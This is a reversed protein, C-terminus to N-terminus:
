DELGGSPAPQEADESLDFMRELAHMNVLTTSVSQADTGDSRLAQMPGHLLKNTIGRSLEEIAKRQKKSLEEKGLAKLAKDMEACRIAEAKARLRKITPVTELSDRWAEFAGREELLMVKAEEAAACRAEKNTDVVEKLDDVNYLVATALEGCDRNCNRPVAIDVLRRVGGVAARPPPMAALDAACLLPEDSSSATFIVDAEATAALLDPSLRIEITADPFEAALAEASARSRNVLTMRTCNKSILHKVLLRSMKGAGVILVNVGEYTTGPLKMQALEAAASSVSVAGSAISTESRVRKGATIAAKFLGNLHRGFGPAKEGSAHV